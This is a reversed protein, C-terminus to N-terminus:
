CYGAAMRMGYKSATLQRSGHAMLKGRSKELLRNKRRM